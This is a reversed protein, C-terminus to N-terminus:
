IGDPQVATSSVNDGSLWLYSLFALLAGILTAAIDHIDFYFSPGFIQIFEWTILGLTTFVSVRLFAKRSEGQTNNAIKPLFSALILPMAYGAALNPSVGIFYQFLPTTVPINARVWHTANLLALGLMGVLALRVAFSIKMDLGFKNM